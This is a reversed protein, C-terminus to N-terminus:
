NALEVLSLAKDELSEPCKGSILNVVRQLTASLPAPQKRNWAIPGPALYANWNDGRCSIARTSSSLTARVHWFPQNVNDKITKDKYPQCGAELKCLRLVRMAIRWMFRFHDVETEHPPDEQSIGHSRCRDSLFPYDILSQM